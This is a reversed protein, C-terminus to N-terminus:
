LGRLLLSNKGGNRLQAVEGRGNEYAASRHTQEMYNLVKNQYIFRLLPFSCVYIVHSFAWSMEPVASYAPSVYLICLSYCAFSYM